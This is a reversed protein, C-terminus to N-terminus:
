GSATPTALATTMPGLSAFPLLADRAVMSVYLNAVGNGNPALATVMNGTTTEYAVDLALATVMADLATTYTLLITLTPAMTDDTDTISMDVIDPSLVTSTTAVFVHNEGDNWAPALAPVMAMADEAAYALLATLIATNRHWTQLIVPTQLDATVDILAVRDHPVSMEAPCYGLEATTTAIAFNSIILLFCAVLAAPALRIIRM